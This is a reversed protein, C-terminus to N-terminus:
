GFGDDRVACSMQVGLRCAGDRHCQCTRCMNIEQVAPVALRPSPRDLCKANDEKKNAEVLLM